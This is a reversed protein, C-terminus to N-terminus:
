LASDNEVAKFTVKETLSKSASYVLEGTHSGKERQLGSSGIMVSNLFRYEHLRDNNFCPHTVSMDITPNQPDITFSRPRQSEQPCGPRADTRTLNIEHVNSTCSERIKRTAIASNTIPEQQPLLRLEECAYIM